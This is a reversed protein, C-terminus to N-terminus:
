NSHERASEKIAKGGAEVDKGFGETTSCGAIAGGFSALAALCFMLKIM